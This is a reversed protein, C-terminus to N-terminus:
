QPTDNEASSDVAAREHRRETRRPGGGLCAKIYRVEQVKEVLLVEGSIDPPTSGRDLQQYGDVLGGRRLKGVSQIAEAVPERVRRHVGDGGSDVHDILNERGHRALQVPDLQGGRHHPSREVM